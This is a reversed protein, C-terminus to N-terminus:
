SGILSEMAQKESANLQELAQQMQEVASARDALTKDRQAAVAIYDDDSAPVGKATLQALSENLSALAVDFPKPAADIQALIQNRHCAFVRALPPALREKSLEKVEESLLAGEREYRRSLEKAKSEVKKAEAVKSKITVSPVQFSFDQRKMESTPVDFAIRTTDMRVEPIGLVIRQEEMFPEPIDLWTDDWWGTCKPIPKRWTVETCKVKWIPPGKIRKMRVSPTHFIIDRNKMTVQPVDFSIDRREMKFQPIDMAFSVDRMEFEIIFLKGIERGIVGGVAVGVPGAVYGGAAAGASAGVAAALDDDDELDEGLDRTEEQARIAFEEARQTAFADVAAVADDFAKQELECPM